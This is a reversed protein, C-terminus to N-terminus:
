DVVTAVAKHPVFIGCGRKREDGLGVRQLAMSDDSDLGHLMLSFGHLEGSGIRARRAKGCVVQGAPFAGLGIEALHARCAALFRQEDTEGVAVFSSYLVRAPWLPKESAAGIEVEGGLDLTAGILHEADARRHRPIRLTMRARRTLYLERDGASVGALPHVGALAEDELWDLRSALVRYLRDAYDLEIAQGRLEFVLDIIERDDGSVPGAPEGAGMGADKQGM